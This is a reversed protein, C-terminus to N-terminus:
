KKGEGDQLQCYWFVTIRDNREIILRPQEWPFDTSLSLNTNIQDNRESRYIEFLRQECQGFNQYHEKPFPQILSHTPDDLTYVFYQLVVEFENARIASVTCILSLVIISFFRLL